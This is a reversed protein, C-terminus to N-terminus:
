SQVQQWSGDAARCATGTVKQEYGGMFVWANYDRCDGNSSTRYTRTPTVTYQNGNDPNRWNVSRGTPTTELTQQVRVRDTRDMNQGIHGGVVAGIVTGTLIAATRGSGKGFQSGGAAGLLAGVIFGGTKNSIGWGAHRARPGYHHIVKVPRRHPRPQYKHIIVKKHHHHHVVKRVKNRHKRGHRHKRGDKHIIIVKKGYGNWGRHKHDASATSVGGALLAAASISVIATRKLNSILTSM